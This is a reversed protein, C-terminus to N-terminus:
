EYLYTNVLNLLDKDQFPKPVFKLAGKSMAEDVFSRHVMSSCVLIKAEHNFNLIEHVVELGDMDPMTIDMTVLDPKMKKYLALGEVGGDAEIFEVSKSLSSLANKIIMRMFVSDDVILIMKKNM